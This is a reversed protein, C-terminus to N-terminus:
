CSTSQLKLAVDPDLITVSHLRLWNCGRNRKEVSKTSSTAQKGNIRGVANCDHTILIAYVRTRYIRVRRCGYLFFIVVYFVPLLSKSVTSGNLYKSVFM